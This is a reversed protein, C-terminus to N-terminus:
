DAEASRELRSQQLRKFRFINEREREELMMQIYDKEARLRPLLVHELANMRRTTSRIEQALRRLRIEQSSLTLVLGVVNEFRDAVADIRPTSATLAYGREDLRRSVPPAALEPVQVGMINAVRAEVQIGKRTALAASRVAEPGDYAEAEALAHRADAAAEDLADSRVMVQEALRQLEKILANRKETLLDRGQQALEIQARRALLNMRTPSAHEV